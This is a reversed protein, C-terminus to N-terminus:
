RSKRPDRRRRKREAREALANRVLTETDVPCRRCAEIMAADFQESYQLEPSPPLEVARWFSDEDTLLCTLSGTKRLLRRYHRCMNLTETVHMPSTKLWRLCAHREAISLRGRYWRLLLNAAEDGVTAPQNQKVRERM